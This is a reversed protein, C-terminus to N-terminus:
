RKGEQYKKLGEKYEAVAKGFDGEKEYLLGLQYHVRVPHPNLVLARRLAEIEDSIKGEGPAATAVQAMAEAGTGTGSDLAEAPQASLLACISFGTLCFFLGRMQLASTM